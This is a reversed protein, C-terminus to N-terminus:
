ASATSSTRSALRINASSSMFPLLTMRSFKGSRAAHLAIVKNPVQFLMTTLEKSLATLVSKVHVACRATSRRNRTMSLDVVKEGSLDATIELNGLRLLPRQARYFLVHRM